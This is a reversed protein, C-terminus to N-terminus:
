VIILTTINPIPIDLHIMRVFKIVRHSMTWFYHGIVICLLQCHFANSIYVHLFISPDVRVGNCKREYVMFICLNCLIKHSHVASYHPSFILFILNRDCTNSDALILSFATLTFHVQFILILSFRVKKVREPKKGALSGKLTKVNWTYKDMKRTIAM